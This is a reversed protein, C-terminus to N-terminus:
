SEAILAKVLGGPVVLRRRWKGDGDGSLDRDLIDGLEARDEIPLDPFLHRVIDSAIIGEHGAEKALKLVAGALGGEKAHDLDYQDLIGELEQQTRPVRDGPDRSIMGDDRAVSATGQWKIEIVREAEAASTFPGFVQDGGDPAQTIFDDAGLECVYFGDPMPTSTGNRDAVEGDWYRGDCLEFLALRPANEVDFLKRGQMQWKSKRALRLRQPIDGGVVLIRLWGRGDGVLDRNLIDILNRRDEKPLDSFFRNVVKPASMADLGAEQTMKLTAGALGGQEAHQLDYQDLLRELEQQSRM